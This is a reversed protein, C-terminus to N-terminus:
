ACTATACNPRVLGTTCCALTPATAVISNYAVSQAGHRRFEYLLEAELHYERLGHRSARMARVHAQASIEAARRMTVLEGADKFLRMEDLLTRVDLAASPSSV